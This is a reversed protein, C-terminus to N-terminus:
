HEIRFIEEVEGNRVGYIRSHLNVTADSYQAWVELKKGVEIGSSSGPHIDILAHEAHLATLKAGSAGKLEPLGREGSIAKVGCDLVAHGGDRKSVVTALVTLARSFPAGLNMYRTDMLLYSGVQVDTIGPCEGSISYTGTGGTSVIAVPIGSGEILAASDALEKCGRRVMENRQTSALESQLHGDYGMIGRVNLGKQAASKALRVAPEGPQVGCRNLGINIDVVVEFQIKRNRQMRTMDAFVCESDVAVMVSARRSLEALRELKAVDAIENAILVSPVEHEVLIEAERLTACTIGIAGADLQKRALAPAKHNKFHPRAKCKRGVFYGAMKKLNGEMADLDVLLAPTDIDTAKMVLVSSGEFLLQFRDERRLPSFKTTCSSM